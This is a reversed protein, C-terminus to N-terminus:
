SASARCARPALRQRRPSPLADAQDAVEHLPPLFQLRRWRARAAGAVALRDAPARRNGSGVRDQRSPVFLPDVRRGPQPCQLAVAGHRFRSPASALRLRSAPAGMGRQPRHRRLRLLGRCRCRRRLLGLPRCLYRARRDSRRHAPRDARDDATRAARRFLALPLLHERPPPFRRRSDDGRVCLAVQRGPGSASGIAM